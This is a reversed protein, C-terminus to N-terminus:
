LWSLPYDNPGPGETSAPWASPLRDDRPISPERSIARHLHLITELLEQVASGAKALDLDPRSMISHMAPV